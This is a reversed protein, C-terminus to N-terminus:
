DVESVDFKVSYELKGTKLQDEEFSGPAVNWTRGFPDRVSIKTTKSLEALLADYKQKGTSYQDDLLDIEMSLSGGSFGRDQVVKNTKGLVQRKSQIRDIRRSFKSPGEFRYSGVFWATFVAAASVTASRASIQTSSVYQEVQYYYTTGTVVNADAYNSVTVLTDNIKEFPVDIFARRYVNYGQLGDASGDQWDIVIKAGANDATATVGSPPALIAKIFGRATFSSWVDYPDQTRVEWQYITNYVLKNANPIDYYNQGTAVTGTDLLLTGAESYLKVQFAKQIEGGTDVHQWSLRPTNDDSIQAAAAASGGAPSPNIPMGPTANTYFYEYGSYPGWNGHQDQTRVRWAYKKGSMLTGGPISLSAAASVVNGSDLILSLSSGDFIQVQFGAQTDTGDADSYSWTLAPVLNDLVIQPAASDPNGPNQNIPASPSRDLHFYRLASYDGWSGISDKARMQINYTKDYVLNASAPIPYSLGSTIVDGSDWIQTVGDYIIFQVSNQPNGNADAYTWTISPTQTDTYITGVGSTAAPTTITAIPKQNTKIWESASAPSIFDSPDWATVNWYYQTTWALVAGPVDFYNNASVVKGSDHLLTGGANYIMVRFAYQAGGDLDNFQWSLRPTLTTVIDPTSSNIGGPSLNTPATPANNILISDSYVLSVNGSLDRFKIYVTRQGSGGSLTWVKSVAATEWVAGAFGSDNSIMMGNIGSGGESWAINLTVANSTTSTAGGEITVSGTPVTTDRYAYANTMTSSNGANDIAVFGIRWNGDVDPVIDAYYDSTSGNKTAVGSSFLSGDPRYAFFEVRNVGSANGSDTVSYAWARFSGTVYQQPSVSGIAPVTTDIRVNNRFSWAGWAVGDHTRVAFSWLGDQIAPTTHSGANSAVQGSDYAWSAFNDLSGVVQYYQQPNGDPDNHTWTITPTNDNITTNDAYSTITPATPPLNYDIMMYPAFDNAPAYEKSRIQLVGSTPSSFSIGYNPDTGSLWSEVFTKFIGNTSSVWGLANQHNLFNTNLEVPNQFNNWTASAENWDVTLRGTLLEWVGASISEVYFYFSVSNIASGAPISSIDFKLVSYKNNASASPQIHLLTEAGKVGNPSAQDLYTDQVANFKVVPM